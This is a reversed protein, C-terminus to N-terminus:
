VIEQIRDRFKVYVFSAVLAIIGFVIFSIIRYLEGLSWVDVVVKFATILFLVLGM